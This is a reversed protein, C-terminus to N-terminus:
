SISELLQNPDPFCLVLKQLRMQGDSDAQRELYMVRVSELRDGPCINLEAFHSELIAEDIVGYLGDAINVILNGPSSHEVIPHDITDGIRLSYSLENDDCFPVEALLYEAEGDRECEIGHVVLLLNQGAEFSSLREM